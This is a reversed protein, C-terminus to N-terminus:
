SLKLVIFLSNSTRDLPSKLKVEYSYDFFSLYLGNCCKVYHKYYVGKMKIDINLKYNPNLNDIYLDPQVIATEYLIKM